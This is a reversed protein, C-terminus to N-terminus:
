DAIRSLLKIEEALGLYPSDDEKSDRITAIALAFAEVQVGGELEHTEALVKKVKDNRKAEDLLLKVVDM